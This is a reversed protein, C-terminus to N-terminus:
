RGEVSNVAVPKVEVLFIKKLEKARTRANIFPLTLQSIHFYPFEKLVQMEYKKEKIKNLNEENVYLITASPFSLSDASIVKVKAKSYFEFAYNSVDNDIVSVSSYNNNNAYYAAENGSQYKLLHPYFIVNYCVNVIAVSLFSIAITSAINKTKIWFFVGVGLLIIISAVLIHDPVGFFIILAVILLLAVISIFIQIDKIVTISRKSKLQYLYEATIIAFFTYVVNMYHPLQFKSVSFLIFSVLATSIVVYEKMIGKNRFYVLKLVIAAYFLLSWPLFAWLVTHFFFFPDGSGKIPGNNMFRGFQSDWFFFRLGSVHTKGFVIKEPHLDFQMYLCYLEPVIFIGTLVIAIWWKYNVFQHWDRKMLWEIVFGFGIIILVFIGKTMVAMAAMLAGLFIHLFNGGKYVKYFYYVSAVIMGTLYPEARVDNNSIILHEAVLYILVSLQAISRGYILKALQFTYYAGLLWFIFAPFKYAFSTIGFISYSFATVWFPFHPKDLWERGEINMNVYNHSLYMNKAIVAYLTGDSEIIPMFLGTANVIIGIVLLWVFNKSLWKDWSFNFSNIM